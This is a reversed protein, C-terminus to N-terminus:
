QEKLKEILAAFYASKEPNILSLKEYMEIAEKLHGQKQLLQALLESIAAGGLTVSEEIRKEDIPDNKGELALLWESFETLESEIHEIQEEEFKEQKQIIKEVDYVNWDEISETVEELEIEKPQSPSLEEKPMDFVFDEISEEIEIEDIKDNTDIDSYAINQFIPNSDNKNENNLEKEKESETGEKTQTNGIHVIDANSIEEKKKKKFKGKISVKNKKSKKKKDKKKKKKSKKKKSKSAVSTTLDNNDSNVNQLSLSESEADEVKKIDYQSLVDHMKLRDTMVTATKYFSKPDDINLTKLKIAKILHLSQTYPSEEIWDNIDDLSLTKILDPRLIIDILKHGGRM